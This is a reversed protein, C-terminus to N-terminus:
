RPESTVKKLAQDICQGWAPGDGTELWRCMLDCDITDDDEFLLREEGPELASLLKRTLEDM